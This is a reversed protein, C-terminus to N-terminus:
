RRRDDYLVPALTPGPVTVEPPCWPLKGLDNVTPRTVAPDIDRVWCPSPDAPTIRPTPTALTILTIVGVVTGM